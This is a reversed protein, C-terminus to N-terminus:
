HAARKREEEELERVLKGVDTPAASSPADWSNRFHKEPGLFTAAQLIYETGLKGTAACFNAYRVVGEAIEGSTCGEALRARYAGVAKKQPNAGARKPYANWFTEFGEPFAHAGNKRAKYEGGDEDEDEGGDVPAHAICNSPMQRANSSCGVPPDPCKSKKARVQQDFKVLELYRKGEVAYVRILGAKETVLLWKGIDSTSVVDLRLPYCAARLLSPNASYRGYDDVVSMLRRYFLEELAGLSNVAESTIIGDRLIRNPV